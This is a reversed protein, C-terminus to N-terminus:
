KIATLPPDQDLPCALEVALKAAPAVVADVAELQRPRQGDEFWRYAKAAALSGSHTPLVQSFGAQQLWQVWTAGSPHITKCVRAKIVRPKLRALLEPTLRSFERGGLKEMLQKAPLDLTLGYQVAYEGAINRNYALLKCTDGDIALVEFEQEKGGRYAALGEYSIRLCGGPRLIRYFERLITRPEPTQEVASAAMIGDFTQDAFPLREGAAYSVFRANGIGLRRANETCVEVRRRSSDLGVVERAYPAVLLSPWGDGPGFDLLKKGEGRTAYLFDYIAGRESWHFRNTGDFDQYILPLSYGSQSEMDDYILVETTCPEPALQEEIFRFVDM